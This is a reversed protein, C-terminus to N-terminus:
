LGGGGSECSTDPASVVRVLTVEDATVRYVAVSELGLATSAPGPCDYEFTVPLRVRVRVAGESRDEVTTTAAQYAAVDVDTANPSARLVARIRAREAAVARGTANEVAVTATETGVTTPSGGDAGPGSGPLGACGAGLLCCLWLALVTRRVGVGQRRAPLHTDGGRGAM